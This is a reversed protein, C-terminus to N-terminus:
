SCASPPARSRRRPGARLRLGSEHGRAAAHDPCMRDRWAINAATPAIATAARQGEVRRVCEAPELEIGDIGSERDPLVPAAPPRRPRSPRHCSTRRARDGTATEASWGRRGSRAAPDAPARTIAYSTGLELRGGRLLVVGQDPRHVSGVSDHESGGLDVAAPAGVHEATLLDDARYVRARGVGAHRKVRSADYTTAGRVARARSSTAAASTAVPSLIM